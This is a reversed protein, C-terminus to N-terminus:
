ERGAEGDGNVSEVASPAPPGSFRTVLRSIDNYFVLIMLAALATVGVWQTAERVKLSIPSRKVAEILFIVFQGGDLVPLPLLNLVALNVSIFCMLWIFDTLGERAKKGAIQAIMIPGGMVKSSIKLQVLKVVSMVTLAGMRFAEATGLGLATVPGVSERIIDVRPAIGVMPTFVTKGDLGQRPDLDPIVAFSMPAGDRLVDIRFPRGPVEGDRAARPAAAPGGAAAPSAAAPAEPVAAAADGPVAPSYGAPDPAEPAPPSVAAAEPAPPSAAAGAARDAAGPEGAPGPGADRRQILGLVDAWDSVPRGDVATVLDGARLGAKEAPMGALVEGLVPVTRPTFGFHWYAEKDGLITTGERRVPRVTFSAERGERRVTLLAPAGGGGAQFELLEDFFSVPRGDVSTVLDDMRLGAKSLPSEPDLPGLVPAAHQIGTSWTLIWLVLAAFLLNFFPGALVVAAKVPFPKHSFSRGIDAPAPETGPEDGVLKVYGGLPLAALQYETEGIKRSWLKPPFGLSFREVGVGLLKAALFHGLEHVFILILLLVLFSLLTTLM